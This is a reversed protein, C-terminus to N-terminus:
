GQKSRVSFKSTWSVIRTVACLLLKCVNHLKLSKQFQYDLNGVEVDMVHLGVLLTSIEGMIVLVIHHMIM